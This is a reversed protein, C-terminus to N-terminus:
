YKKGVARKKKESTRGSRRKTARREGVDKRRRKKGGKNLETFFTLGPLQFDNVTGSCDRRLPVEAVKFVFHIVGSKFFVRRKNNKGLHTSKKKKLTPESVQGGLM